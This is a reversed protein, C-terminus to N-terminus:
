AYFVGASNNITKLIKSPITALKRRAVKRRQKWQEGNINGFPVAGANGIHTSLINFKGTAAVGARDHFRRIVQTVLESHNLAIGTLVGFNTQHIPGYIVPFRNM